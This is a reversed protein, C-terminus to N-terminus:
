DNPHMRLQRLVSGQPPGESRESRSPAAHVLHNVRPYCESTSILPNFLLASSLVDQRKVVWGSQVLPRAVRSLRGPYGQIFLGEPLKQDAFLQGHTFGSVLVLISVAVFRRIQQM